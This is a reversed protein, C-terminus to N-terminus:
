CIICKGILHKIILKEGLLFFFIIFLYYRKSSLRKVAVRTTNLLICRYVIGHDGNGIVNEDAFGNTVVEIERLAVRNGGWADSVVPSYRAVSELDAVNDDGSGQTTVGSAQDASVLQQHHHDLKAMNM